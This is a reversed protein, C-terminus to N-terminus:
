RGLMLTVSEKTSNRRFRTNAQKSTERTAIESNLLGCSEFVKAFCNGSFTAAIITNTSSSANECGQGPLITLPTPIHLQKRLDLHTLEIARYQRKGHLVWRKLYWAPVALKKKRNTHFRMLKHMVRMIALRERVNCTGFIVEDIQRLKTWTPPLVGGYFKEVAPWGDILARVPADEEMMDEIQELDATSKAPVTLVENAFRWMNITLEGGAATNSSCECGPEPRPIIPDRLVGYNESADDSIFSEDPHFSTVNSIQMPLTHRQRLLPENRPIDLKHPLKVDNPSIPSQSDEGRHPPFTIAPDVTAEDDFSEFTDNPQLPSDLSTKDSIATTKELVLSQHAQISNQISQLTRALTDRDRAIESLQKMLTAVQGSSDSKQFDDVLGELYAIRNKTRERAVRQCRRDLERKRMRRSSANDIIDEEKATASM